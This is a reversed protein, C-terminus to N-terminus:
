CPESKLKILQLTEELTLDDKNLLYDVAEQINKYYVPNSEFNVFLAVSNLQASYNIANKYYCVRYTSNAFIIM